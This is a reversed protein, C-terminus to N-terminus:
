LVRTSTTSQGSRLITSGARFSTTCFSKMSRRFISHSCASSCSIALSPAFVDNSIKWAPLFRPSFMTSGGIRSAFHSGSRLSPVVHCGGYSPLWRISVSVRPSDASIMSWGLLMPWALPCTRAHASSFAVGVWPDASHPCMRSSAGLPLRASGKGWIKSATSTIM